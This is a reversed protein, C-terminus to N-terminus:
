NKNYKGIIKLYESSLPPCIELLNDVFYDINSDQLVKAKVNGDISEPMVDIGTYIDSITPFQISDDGDIHEDSFYLKDEIVFIQGYTYEKLKTSSIDEKSAFNHKIHEVHKFDFNYGNEKRTLVCRKGIDLLRHKMHSTFAEGFESIFMGMSITRKMNYKRKLNVGRVIEKINQIKYKYFFCGNRHCKFNSM